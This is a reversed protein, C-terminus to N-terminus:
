SSPETTKATAKSKSSSVFSKFKLNKAQSKLVACREQRTNHSSNIAKNLHEVVKVQLRLDKNEQRLEVILKAYEQNRSM